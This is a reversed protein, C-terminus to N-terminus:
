SPTPPFPPPPRRPLLLYSAITFRPLPPARRPYSNTGRADTKRQRAGRPPTSLNCVPASHQAPGFAHDMGPRVAPAADPMFSAFPGLACAPSESGIPEPPPMSPHGATHALFTHADTLASPVQALPQLHAYHADGLGSPLHALLSSARHSGHSYGLASAVQALPQLHAYHADGSGSLLHALSSPPSLAFPTSPAGLADGSGPGSLPQVLPTSLNPTELPSPPSAMAAPLPHARILPSPSFISDPSYPPFLSRAPLASAGAGGSEKSSSAQM